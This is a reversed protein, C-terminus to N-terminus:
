LEHRIEKLLLQLKQRTRTLSVGVQNENLGTIQSIERYALGDLHLLILSREPKPLRRIASYLADLRENQEHRADPTPQSCALDPPTEVAFVRHRRRTEDRRWTLATNLCVRYIWTSPQCQGVFRPLSRWLQVLMDQVLDAREETSDAYLRAVKHFLGAHERWWREFTAQLPDPDNM